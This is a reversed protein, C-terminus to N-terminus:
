QSRLLHPLFATLFLAKRREPGRGSKPGELLVHWLCITSLLAPVLLSSRRRFIQEVINVDGADPWGLNFHSTSDLVLFIMEHALSTFM